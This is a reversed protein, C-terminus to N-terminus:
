QKIDGIIKVETQLEIDFKESVTKQVYLILSEIDEATATKDNVIFNSHKESVVAGGIRKGKLGSREILDAAHEGAPNKFVSGCSFVGTPQSEARKSLMQKIGSVKVDSPSNEFKLVASIFWEDEIGSVSRYGVAFEDALHEQIEGHRSITKVSVVHRWTDGGFAGANMALAGGLLGPIGAFFDGGLLNNKACFKALKACSVSAGVEIQGAEKLVMDTAVGQMAIITGAFGGDRVLTNSGLGLWFLEENDPLSKLMAALGGIDEAIFFQKAKGGARWSTHKAMPEDRLLIGKPKDDVMTLVAEM